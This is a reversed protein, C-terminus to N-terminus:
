EDEIELGKIELGEIEHAMRLDSLAGREKVLFAARYRMHEQGLRYAESIALTIDNELATFTSALPVPLCAQDVINRARNREHIWQEALKGTIEGREHADSIPTTNKTVDDKSTM